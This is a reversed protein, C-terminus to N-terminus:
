LNSPEGGPNPLREITPVGLGSGRWPKEPTLGEGVARGILSGIVRGGAAGGATVKVAPIEVNASPRSRRVARAVEREVAARVAAEGVTGAPLSLSDIHIEYGKSM